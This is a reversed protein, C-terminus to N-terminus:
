AHPLRYGASRLTEIVNACHDPGKTEVQVEIAVEHLGSDRADTCTTVGTWTGAEDPAFRVRWTAGGDWFGLVRRSRGSPGTFTVRLECEQTPEARAVASTLEVEVVQWIPTELPM